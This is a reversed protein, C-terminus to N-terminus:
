LQFNRTINFGLHINGGFFDDTTEGVFGKAIMASSNTIHFQFIHGGTDIDFGLALANFYDPNLEQIQYYYEANISFRKGIKYRGGIGVAFVDNNEQIAVANYHVWVPMLQLSVASSIKRAILLQNTFALNQQFNLEPVMRVTRYAASGFYTIAVPIQKDGKSQSLLRYKAFGDLHKGLSNRGIGLTFKDTVAYDLGLRINAGDMGFFEYAGGRINGFRHSIIFTLNKRSRTEVSHGNILRTGKFTGEIMVKGEDLEQDIQSLLDDQANSLYVSSILLLCSFVFRM